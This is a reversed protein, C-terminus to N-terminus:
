HVRAGRESRRKSTVEKARGKELGKWRIGWLARKHEQKCTAAEAIAARRSTERRFYLGRSSLANAVVNLEDIVTPVWFDM